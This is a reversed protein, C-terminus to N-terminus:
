MQRITDITDYRITDYRITDYRITDYRITDYRITDNDKDYWIMDYWIMDYWIMDHICCVSALLLFNKAPITHSCAEASPFNLWPLPAFGPGLHTSVRHYEHKKGWPHWLGMCSFSNFSGSLCQYIQMKETYGLQLKSWNQWFEGLSCCVRPQNPCQAPDEVSPCWDTENLRAACEPQDYDQGEATWVKNGNHCSPMHQLDNVIHGKSNNQHNYIYINLSFMYELVYWLQLYQVIVEVQCSQTLVRSTIKNLNQRESRFGWLHAPSFWVNWFTGVGDLVMPKNMTGGIFRADHDLVQQISAQRSNIKQRNSKDALQKHHHDLIFDPFESTVSMGKYTGELDQYEETSRPGVLRHAAERPEFWRRGKFSSSPVHQWAIGSPGPIDPSAPETWTFRWSFWRTDDQIVVTANKIHWSYGSILWCM